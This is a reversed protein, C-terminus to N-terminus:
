TPRWTPRQCPLMIGKLLSNLIRVVRYRPAVLECTIDRAELVASRLAETVGPSETGGSFNLLMQMRWLIVELHQVSQNQKINTEQVDM